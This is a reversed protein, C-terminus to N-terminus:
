FIRSLFYFYSGFDHSRKTKQRMYSLFESLGLTLERNGNPVIQKGGSLFTKLIKNAGVLEMFRVSPCGQERFFRGM